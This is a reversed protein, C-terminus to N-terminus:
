GGYPLDLYLSVNDGDKLVTHIGKECLSLPCGNIMVEFIPQLATGESNLYELNDSTTSRGSIIRVLDKLTVEVADVHISDISRDGLLLYNATLNIKM